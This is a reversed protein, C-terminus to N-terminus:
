IAVELLHHKAYVLMDGGVYVYVSPKLTDEFSLTKTFEGSVFFNSVYVLKTEMTIGSAIIQAATKSIEKDFYGGFLTIFGKEFPIMSLSSYYGNDFGMYRVGDVNTAFGNRIDNSSLRLASGLESSREYAVEDETSDNICNDNGFILSQYNSIEVVDKGSSLYKGFPDCTWVVKGGENLWNIILSDSTGNYVTDPLTGSAFIVTSYTSSKMLSELENANIQTPNVGRKVLEASVAGNFSSQSSHSVYKNSYKEDFYIYVTSPLEAGDLIVASGDTNVSSNIKLTFDSGDIEISSDCAYPNAWYVMGQGIVLIVVLALGILTPANLKGM